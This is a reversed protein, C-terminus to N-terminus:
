KIIKDESDKKREKAYLLKIAQLKQKLSKTVFELKDKPYFRSIAEPKILKFM